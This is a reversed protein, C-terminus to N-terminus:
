DHENVVSPNWQLVQLKTVDGEFYRGLQQALNTMETAASYGSETFPQSSASVLARKVSPHNPSADAPLQAVTWDVVPRFPEILDDALNFPNSRGRHFLGLAPALGAEMVARIAHGRLVTYGYDLLGNRGSGAGPNRYFREGDGFLQPWYAKAARAECNDPDGSRVSKRIDVLTKAAPRRLEKLNAQQGAIKARVINGWANKKSPISASAQALQRAGVRSHASWPSVASVPVGTWNCVLTVVDFQAFQHLVAAGISVKLGLLVVAVDALPVTREEGGDPRVKVQGRQYSIRGELASCDLIRWGGPM